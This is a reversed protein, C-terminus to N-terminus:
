KQEYKQECYVCRYTHQEKDTLKFVQEIGREISTICRPNKCSVVNRIIEPMTLKKKEIINGNDIINVTINVTSLGWFMWTM